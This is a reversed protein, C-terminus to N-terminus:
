DAGTQEAGAGDRRSAASDPVYTAAAYIIMQDILADCGTIRTRTVEPVRTHANVTVDPLRPSGPHGAVGFPVTELYSQALEPLDDCAMTDASAAQGALRHLSLAFTMIPGDPLANLAQALADAARGQALHLAAAQGFLVAQAPPAGAGRAAKTALAQVEARSWSM